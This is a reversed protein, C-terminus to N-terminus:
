AVLGRLFREVEGPDRLTHEAATPASADGVHITVGRGRLAVFADEDTVDDGVVLAQAREGLGLRELIWLAARGKDWAVAPQLDLVQKGETVRLRRRDALVARVSQRVRAAELPGCQRYHVALSFRKRELLSGACTALAEVLTREAADLEPLAEVAGPPAFREGSPGAVDLGHSGAYWIGALGVRAAVDARERGSVVAVPVREALAAVAARASDTLAAADPYPVIEALTGDFDLFAAWPVGALRGRLADLEELASPLRTV